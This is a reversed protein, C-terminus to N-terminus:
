YEMLAGLWQRVRHGLEWEKGTGWVALFNYTPAQGHSKLYRPYERGDNWLNYVFRSIYKM